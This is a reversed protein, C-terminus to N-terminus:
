QLGVFATLDAQPERRRTVRQEEVQLVPVLERLQVQGFGCPRHLTGVWAACGIGYEVPVILERQKLRAIRHTKLVVAPQHIRAERGHKFVPHIETLQPIEVNGIFVEFHGDDAKFLVREGDGM